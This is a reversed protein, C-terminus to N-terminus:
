AAPKSGGSPILKSSKATNISSHTLCTHLLAQLPYPQRPLSSERLILPMWKQRM